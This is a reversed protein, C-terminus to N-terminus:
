KSSAEVSCLLSWSIMSARSPFTRRNIVVAAEGCQLIKTWRLRSEALVFGKEDTQGSLLATYQQQSQELLNPETRCRPASRRAAIRDRSTQNRMGFSSSRSKVTAAIRDARRTPGQLDAAARVVAFGQELGEAAVEQNHHRGRQQQAHEAAREKGM